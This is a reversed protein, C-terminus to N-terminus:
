KSQSSQMRGPEPCPQSGRHRHLTPGSLTLVCILRGIQVSRYCSLSVCFLHHWSNQAVSAFHVLIQFTTGEDIQIIRQPIRSSFLPFDPNRCATLMTAAQWRPCSKGELAAGHMTHKALYCQPVCALPASVGATVVTPIIWADPFLM